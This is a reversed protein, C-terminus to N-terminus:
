VNHHRLTFYLFLLFVWALAVIVVADKFATDGISGKGDMPRKRPERAPNEKTGVLAVVPPTETAMGANM